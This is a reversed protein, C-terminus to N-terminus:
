CPVALIISLEGFPWTADSSVHFDGQVHNMKLVTM